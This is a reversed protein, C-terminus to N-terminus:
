SIYTCTATRVLYASYIARHKRSIIVYVTAVSDPAVLFFIAVLFCQRDFLPLDHCIVPFETKFVIMIVKKNCTM